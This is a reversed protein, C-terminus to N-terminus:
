GALMAAITDALQAVATSVASAFGTTTPNPPTVSFRVTRTQTRRGSLAIQAALILQGAADQDLREINIEVTADPNASIAGSEPFVTTGPLRQQLEAVLIRSLMAGLPEGWWDNSMVDLRFDESSRVINPRELFRALSITRLKVVHPAAPLTPGPIAAITYLVPNPSSCGALVAPAGAALLAFARRSLM